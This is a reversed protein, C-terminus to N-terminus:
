RRVLVQHLRRTWYAPNVRIEDMFRCAIVSPTNVGQEWARVAKVSVGLFRAFVAQSANLIARTEKVLKPHYRTPRHDFAVTRCTFKENIPEKRELTAVFEELGQIIRAGVSIRQASSNKALSNKAAHKM